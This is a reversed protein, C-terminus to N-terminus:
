EQNKLQDKYIIKTAQRSTHWHADRRHRIFNTCISKVVATIQLLFISNQQRCRNEWNGLFFSCLGFMPLDAPFVPM